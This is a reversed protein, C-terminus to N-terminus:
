LGPVEPSPNFCLFKTYKRDVASSEVWRYEERFEQWIFSLADELAAISSPDSDSAYAKFGDVFSAEFGPMEFPAKRDGARICNFFMQIHEASIGSLRNELKLVKCAFSNFLVPYFIQPPHKMWEAASHDIETFRKFLADLAAVRALIRRCEELESLREIEKYEAGGEFNAYLRPKDQLLGSLTDGWADGWFSVDLGQRRFWSAQLWRETEWKLELAFGFGVRFISVLPNNRILREALSINSGCLKELALNLFGAARRCTKILADLENDWIGDASCIQNCLGAFEVQIRDVNLSDSIRATAATLLTQGAAHLLPSIPALDHIEEDSFFTKETRATEDSRLHRRDLPAYVWRAEEAPLFGHEALRVNRMRYMDEELEAPLVGSLGLVLAQYKELNESAMIRLIEEITAKQDEVRVKVYYLGDFTFFGDSTDYVEDEIRTEVQVIRYFYYYALAQGEGFLWAALRRSDALQLRQIWQLSRELDLRDKHWSELDLIYQWQDESAYALLPLCDDDGIKKVLWFFDECPMQRVLDGPREQELIRNLAAKGSLPYITKLFSRHSPSVPKQGRATRAKDIKQTDLSHTGWRRQSAEIVM